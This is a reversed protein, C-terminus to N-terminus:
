RIGFARPSGVWYIGTPNNVSLLAWLMKGYPTSQIWQEFADSAIVGQFAVSVSEIHASALIGGANGDGQANGAGDVASLTMLHCAMYEIALVRVNDRIVGSVTSIYMTAMTIFRQVYADPYKTSDSFEPFALKLEAVTVSVSM